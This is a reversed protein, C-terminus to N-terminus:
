HLCHNHDTDMDSTENYALDLHFSADTQKGHGDVIFVHAHCVSELKGTELREKCLM